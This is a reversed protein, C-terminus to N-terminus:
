LKQLHFVIKVRKGDVAEVNRKATEFGDASCAIEYRGPRPATLSFMGDDSTLAAVDPLSGPGSTFYVRAGAVPRNSINIALGEIVIM